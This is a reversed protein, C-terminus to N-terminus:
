PATGYDRLNEIARLAADLHEFGRPRELSVVRVRAALEALRELDARHVAPEDMVFRVMANGLVRAAERGRLRRVRLAESFTLHVLIELTAGDDAV